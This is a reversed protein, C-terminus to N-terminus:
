RLPIQFGVYRSYWRYTLVVFRTSVVSVGGGASAATGKTGELVLSLSKGKKRCVISGEKETQRAQHQKDGTGKTTM